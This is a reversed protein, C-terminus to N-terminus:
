FLYINNAKKSVGVLKEEKSAKQKNQEEVTVSHSELNLASNNFGSVTQGLDGEGIAVAQRAATPLGQEESTAAEMSVVKEMGSMDSAQEEKPKFGTKKSGRRALPKIEGSKTMTATATKVNKEQYSHPEEVRPHFGGQQELNIAYPGPSTVKTEAYERSQDQASNDIAKSDLLEPTFQFFTYM